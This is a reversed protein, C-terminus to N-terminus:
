TSEGKDTPKADFTALADDWAKLECQVALDDHDPERLM